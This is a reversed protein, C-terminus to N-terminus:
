PLSEELLRRRAAAAEPSGPCELVIRGLTTLHAEGQGALLQCAALRELARGLDHEADAFRLWRGVTKRATPLDDRALHFTVMGDYAASLHVKVRRSQARPMQGSSLLQEGLAAAQTHFGSLTLEGVRAVDYDARDQLRLRGSLMLRTAARLTQIDAADDLARLLMGPVDAGRGVTALLQAAELANQATAASPALAAGRRAAELAPQSAGVARLQRAVSLCGAALAPQWAADAGAARDLWAFATEAKGAAAAGEAMALAQSPTIAKDGLLTAAREMDAYSVSLAGLADRCLFLLPAAGVAEPSGPFMRLLQLCLGLGRRADELDEVRAKALRLLLEPADQLAVPDGVAEVAALGRRLTDRLKADPKAGSLAALREATALANRAKDTRLQARVLLRLLPPSPLAIEAATQAHRAASPWQRHEACYKALLGCAYAKDDPATIRPVAAEALPLAAADGRALRAHAVLFRDFPAPRLPRIAGTRVDLCRVAHPQPAPTAATNFALTSGDPSWAPMVNLMGDVVVPRPTRTVADFLVIDAPRGRWDSGNRPRFPLRVCAVFVGDPSWAPALCAGTASAAILRHRSSKLAVERVESCGPILHRDAVYALRQGDPSWSPEYGPLVRRCLASAVVRGGGAVRAVHLSWPADSRPRALFAVRDLAPSVVPAAIGGEGEYLKHPANESIPLRWLTASGPSNVAVVLARGKPAWSAVCTGAQSPTSWLVRDKGTSAVLRIELRTKRQLALALTDGSPSVAASLIPAEFRVGTFEDVGGSAVDVRRVAVKGDPRAVAYFLKGGDASWVPATFVPPRNLCGASLVVVLLLLCALPRLLSSRSGTAATGCRRLVHQQATVPGELLNQWSNRGM